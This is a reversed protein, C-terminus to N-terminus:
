ASECLGRLTKPLLEPLDDAVLGDGFRAAADGHIWVAASAAMLAPMGQGLLGAVMGALVDGSGATGLCPPANAAISAMGDPGAVVTDAGKYIVVAGLFAAARRAAELKSPADLIDALGAFLRAFEGAHPTIVVPGASKAVLQALVDARGAFATIADADLVLARERALAVRVAAECRAANGLAPGLVLANFRSDDLLADYAAIDAAERLMISDLRAAHIRLAAVDGVITVLGAGIRAAARAALRSAGTRLESGSLVLVHGRKYKHSDLDLRPLANLWLQPTNEYATPAIAEVTRDSIGIDVLVVSGCLIRGPLLLHGPKRRAFTITVDAATVAGLPQGTDGDLGSPVDVAFIPLGRGAAKALVQAWGDPVPRALGAGFLADIVVDAIEYADPTIEGVLGGYAQAALLADGALNAVPVTCRVDVDYGASALIRAAVFGDGGNNGPGCLVLVRSAGIAHERVAQAVGAGAREMLVFGATGAAITAADAARM